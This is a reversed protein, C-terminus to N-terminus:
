VLLALLRREADAVLEDCYDDWTTPTPVVPVFLRDLTPFSRSGTAPIVASKGHLTIEWAGHRFGQRQYTMSGGHREIIDRLKGYARKKTSM